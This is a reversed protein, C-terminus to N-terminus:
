LCGVLGVFFFFAQAVRDTTGAVTVMEKNRVLLWVRMVM